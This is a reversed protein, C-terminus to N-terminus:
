RGDARETPFLARRYAAAFAPLSFQRAVTARGRRGEAARLEPDLLTELAAVLGDLEGVPAHLGGGDALLEPVEGVATSVCPIERALGDLLFIPLGEYASTLLCLDIADYLPRADAVMPVRHLNPLPRAALEAELEKELPGGGVLLFHVGRPALRRAVEVVDGPRKQPHLRIFTGVVVAAAPLGLEARRQQRREERTAAPALEPLEVGHHLLFIEERPVELQQHLAAAIARNVALHADIAARAAAGNRTFFGGQHHFLQALIRLGPFAARIEDVRDYFFTTGNWSVLTEVQYVRLLHLLAGFHAERPLVDGLTYVHPTLEFARDVSQGLSQQHPELTVILARLSSSTALLDFLLREAGGVALFPLLFLATPPGPIPPMAALRRELRSTYSREAREAALPFRYPGRAGFFPWRTPAPPAKGGLFPVVKGTLPHAATAAPREARLWLGGDAAATIEGPTAGPTAAPEAWGAELLDLDEAAAVLLLVELANPPLHESGGGYALYAAPGEGECWEPRTTGQPLNPGALALLPLRLPPLERERPELVPEGRLAQRRRALRGLWGRLQQRLSRSKEWFGAQFRAPLWAGSALKGIM